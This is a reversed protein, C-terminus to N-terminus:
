VTFLTHFIPSSFIPLIIFIRIALKNDTVNINLGNVAANAISAFRDSGESTGIVASAPFGAGSFDSVGLSSDRSVVDSSICAEPSSAAGERGESSFSGMSGSSDISGSSPSASTKSSDLGGASIFSSGTGAGTALEMGFVKENVQETGSESIMETEMEGSRTAGVRSFEGAITM